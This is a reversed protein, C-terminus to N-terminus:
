QHSHQVFHHITNIHRRDTRGPGDGSTPISEKMDYPSVTYRHLSEESTTTWRSTHPISLYLLYPKGGDKSQESVTACHHSLRRQPETDKAM